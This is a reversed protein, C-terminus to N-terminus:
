IKFENVRTDLDQALNILETSIAKGKEVEKESQEAAVTIQDVSQIIANAAANQQDTADVIQENLASVEVVQAAIESLKEAVTQVDKSRIEAASSSQEMAAVAAAAEKQLEDITSRIEETSDQTRTALSRVEDAVVAFGRGQEGARAAEIAANLALLNTQEAIGRIVSLVGSVAQTREDLKQIVDAAAQVDDKLAHISDRATEAISISEQTLLTTDASKESASHASSRVSAAAGELEHVALSVEEVGKKQEGVAIETASSISHVQQSQDMFGQASKSVSAMSEQFRNMMRDLAKAVEGLEDDAVANIRLNLDMTSEIHLLKKQLRKFRWILSVRVFYALGLFAIVIVLLQMMGSKQVGAAVRSDLSTLSYSIRVAGLIEGSKVNHCHLCNTGRTNETAILPKAVTFVREGNVDDIQSVSEGSLSRRDIGDKVAADADGKGFMRVTNEHRIIRVERMSEHQMFKDQIVKKNALMGSIMLANVGDFYGDAKDWLNDEILSEALRRDNNSTHYVSWSVIVVGIVVLAVYLKAQLSVASLFIKKRPPQSM